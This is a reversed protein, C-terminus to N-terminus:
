LTARLAGESRVVETAPIATVQRPKVADSSALATVEPDPEVSSDHKIWYFVHIYRYM